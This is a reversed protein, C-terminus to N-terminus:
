PLRKKDRCPACVGNVLRPSDWGCLKCIGPSGKPISGAARAARQVGSEIVLHVREQAKDAEDAM